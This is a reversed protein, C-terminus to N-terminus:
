DDGAGFTFLCAAGEPEPEGASGRKVPIAHFELSLDHIKYVNKMIRVNTFSNKFIPYNDPFFYLICFQITVNM